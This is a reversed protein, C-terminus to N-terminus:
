CESVKIYKRFKKQIIIAAQTKTFTRRITPKSNYEVKKPNTQKQNNEPNKLFNNKKNIQTNSSISNNMLSNNINTSSVNAYPNNSGYNGLYNFNSIDKNFANSSFDTRRLKKNEDNILSDKRNLAKNSNPENFNNAKNSNAQTKNTPFIKKLHPTSPRANKITLPNTIENMQNLNGSLKSNPINSQRKNSRNRDNWNDNTLNKYVNNNNNM